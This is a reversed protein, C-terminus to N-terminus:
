HEYGLREPLTVPTGDLVVSLGAGKTCRGIAIMAEPAPLEAPLAALLVYDDGATAAALRSAVSLGHLDAYDASLPIATIEIACGSAEAIRRADILLGDSVDMMATVQHALAQGLSLDPVPMRYAAILSAPEAEEEKLLELGAGADGVPGSIYIVDGPRAGARDPVDRGAPVSGIATLSLVRPTGAPLAVTDGGILPMAHRDLAEALGDLFAADWDTDGALAYNLMCARPVAGKAALDSLNVAALKWGVTEPPDGPLYHVAEVLTDSTLVLQEGSTALLAADDMLGRAAPDAVMARLRRLFDAESSM